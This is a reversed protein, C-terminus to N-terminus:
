PVVGSLLTMFQTDTTILDWERKYIPLGHARLKM